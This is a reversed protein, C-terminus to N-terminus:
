FRVAFCRDELEGFAYQAYAGNYMARTRESWALAAPTSIRRHIQLVGREFVRYEAWAGPYDKVCAVEVYPVDDTARFRRVRNRHTHGAFYGRITRRRAILEVLRESDDPRIGFYSDSRDPSDPDWPHHHGFVLVPRDSEAALADLWELDADAVQGGAHGPRTTDLVALRVGSLACELPADPSFHEGHYADHNGRIHLLRDGFAGRYVELFRAYEEPAGNATLDGKAIVCDAPIEGIEAVAGANMTEPYPPEDPGVSLVPGVDAGEILGCETEGFHVDNVTAFTALREGLRPLTRFRHGHAEVITGPQLDSVRVVRAGDHWVAEDDAVTSLEV